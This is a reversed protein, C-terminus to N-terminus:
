KQPTLAPFPDFPNRPPLGGAEGRWDVAEPSWDDRGDPALEYPLGLLQAREAPTLTAGGSGTDGQDPAGAGRHGYGRHGYGRHGYITLALGVRLPVDGQEPASARVVVLESVLALRDWHEIANLLKRLQWFTADFTVYWTAPAFRPHDAPVPRAEGTALAPWPSGEGAAPRERSYRLPGVGVQKRWRTLEALAVSSADALPPMLGALKALERESADLEEAVGVGADIQDQLQERMLDLMRIDSDLERIGKLEVSSLALLALLLVVAGFGYLVTVQTESLEM